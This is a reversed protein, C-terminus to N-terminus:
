NWATKPNCGCTAYSNEISEMSCICETDIPMAAIRALRKASAIKEAEVKALYAKASNASIRDLIAQMENDSKIVANM